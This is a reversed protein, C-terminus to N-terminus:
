KAIGITKEYAHVDDLEPDQSDICSTTRCSSAARFWRLRARHPQPQPAPRRRYVLARLVHRERVAERRALAATVSARDIKAPDMKLLTETTSARPWIAPRLSHTARFTKAHFIQGHGRALQRHRAQGRRGIAAGHRRQGQRGLGQQDGAPFDPQLAFGPGDLAGQRDPGTGRGGRLDAGRPGEADLRQDRRAQVGDGGAGALDRRALRSRVRHDQRRRRKAEIWGVAGACSWEGVNPINPAFCVFRKIEPFKKVLDMLTKTNSVRPGANTTVYNKQFFCDRPVGVGAIVMVDAKEYHGQNAGCDVFSMNGVLAVVKEDNILKAADQSSQEPNWGDDLMDYKIPRGNIGGNANVCDFYAKAAFGSFSFNDPGTISVIGGIVIPEGTAAKGNSLGCKIDAAHAAGATTAMVVGVIVVGIARIWNM